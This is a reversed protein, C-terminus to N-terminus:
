FAIKVIWFFAHISAFTNFFLLIPVIINKPSPFIIKGTTDREVIALIKRNIRKFSYSFFSILAILPICEILKVVEIPLEDPM